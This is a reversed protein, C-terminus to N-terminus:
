LSNTDNSSVSTLCGRILSRYLGSRPGNKDIRGRQGGAPRGAGRGQLPGITPGKDGARHPAQTGVPLWHRAFACLPAGRDIFIPVVAESHRITMLRRSVEDERARRAIEKDLDAIKNNVGALLDLTLRFMVHASEPLSNAMEDEEILDALM